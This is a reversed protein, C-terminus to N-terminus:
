ASPCIRVGHPTNFVQIICFRVCGRNREKKKSIGTTHYAGTNNNKQAHHHAPDLTSCMGCNITTEQQQAAVSTDRGTRSPGSSHRSTSEECFICGKSGYCLWIKKRLLYRVGRLDLFTHQERGKPGRADALQFHEACSGRQGAARFCNLSPIKSLSYLIVARWRHTTV